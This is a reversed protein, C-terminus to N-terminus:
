SSFLIEGAIIDNKGGELDDRSSAQTKGDRPISGDLHQETSDCNRNGEEAAAMDEGDVGSFQARKTKIRLKVRAVVCAGFM